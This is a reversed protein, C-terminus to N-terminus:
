VSDRPVINQDFLVCQTLSADMDEVAEIIKGNKVEFLFFYSNNYLRNIKFKSHRLIRNKM